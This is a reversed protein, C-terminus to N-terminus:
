SNGPCAKLIVPEEHAGLCGFPESPEPLKPSVLGAPNCWLRIDWGSQSM